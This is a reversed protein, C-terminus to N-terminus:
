SIKGNKELERVRKELISLEETLLVIRKKQESIIITLAFALVLLILLGLLFVLNSVLEINLIKCILTLLNPCLVCLIMIFSSFLWLLSYKLSLRQKKINDVIFTIFFLIIIILFIKLNISM